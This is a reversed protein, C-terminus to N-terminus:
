AAMAYNFEGILTKGPKKVPGWVVGARWCGEVLGTSDLEGGIDFITDDFSHATAVRSPRSLKM